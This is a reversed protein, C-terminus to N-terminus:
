AAPTPLANLKAELEVLKAQVEAMAAVNAAAEAQEEALTMDGESGTQEVVIPPWSIKLEDFHIFVDVRRPWM